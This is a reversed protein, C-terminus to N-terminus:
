LRRNNVTQTERQSEAQSETPTTLSGDIRELPYRVKLRDEIDTLEKASRPQKTDTVTIITPGPRVVTLSTM